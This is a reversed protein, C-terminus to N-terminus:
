CQECEKYKNHQLCFKKGNLVCCALLVQPMTTISFEFNLIYITEINLNLKELPKLIENNISPASSNIGRGIGYIICLVNMKKLIIM